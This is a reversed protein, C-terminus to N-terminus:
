KILLRAAAGILSKGSGSFLPLINRQYFYNKVDKETLKTNAAVLEIQKDIYGLEKDLKSISASNLEGQSIMLNIHALAEQIRANNLNINSDIMELQKKNLNTRSYSEAISALQVAATFQNLIAQEDHKVGALQAQANLDNIKALTEQRNLDFEKPKYEIDQLIKNKQAESLKSDSILKIVEADTKRTQNDLSKEQIVSNFANVLSDSLAPGNIDFQPATPDYRQYSLNPSDASQSSVVGPSGYALNPNLGAGVLRAVQQAPTNYKNERNWQEINQKYALESLKKNSEYQQQNNQRQSERNIFNSAIDAGASIVSGIIQGPM